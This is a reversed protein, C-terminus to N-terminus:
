IAGKEEITDTVKETANNENEPVNDKEENVEHPVKEM